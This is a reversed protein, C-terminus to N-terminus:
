ESDANDKELPQRLTMFTVLVSMSYYRESVIINDLYDLFAAKLVYRFSTSHLCDHPRLNPGDSSACLSRRGGEISGIVVGLLQWEVARLAFIFEKIVWIVDAVNLKILAAGGVYSIRAKKNGFFPANNSNSPALACKQFYFVHL